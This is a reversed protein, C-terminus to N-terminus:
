FHFRGLDNGIAGLSSLGWFHLPLNPLRVWVHTLTLSDKSSNFSLSWPKMCLIYSGWFWPGFSFILYKDEQLDFEVIFFGQSFHFIFVDGKL